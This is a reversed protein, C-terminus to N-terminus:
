APRRRDSSRLSAFMSRSKMVVIRGAPMTRPLYKEAMARVSRIKLAQM